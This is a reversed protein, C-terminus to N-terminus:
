ESQASIRRFLQNVDNQISLAPETGGVRPFFACWVPLDLGSRSHRVAERFIRKIRNRVHAPGSKRSLLIAYRFSEAPKWAVGCTKGSLRRGSNILDTLDVRSKLTLTRPLKNKAVL